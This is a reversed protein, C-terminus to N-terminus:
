NTALICKMAYTFALLVAREERVGSSRYKTTERKGLLPGMINYDKNYPGGLLTGRNKPVVRRGGMYLQHRWRVTRSSGPPLRLPKSSQGERGCDVTSVFPPCVSACPWVGPWPQPNGWLWCISGGNSHRRCSM